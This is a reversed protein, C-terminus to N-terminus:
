KPYAAEVTIHKISLLHPPKSIIYPIPYLPQIPLYSTSPSSKQNLSSLMAAIKAAIHFFNGLHLLLVAALSNEM